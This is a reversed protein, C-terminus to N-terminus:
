KQKDGYRRGKPGRRSAAKREWGKVKRATKVKIGVAEFLRELIMSGHGHPKFVYHGREFNM